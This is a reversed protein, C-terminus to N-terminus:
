LDPPHRARRATAVILRDAPDKHHDFDPLQISDLALAAGVPIIRVGPPRLSAEIWSSVATTLRLRGRKVLMALEWVSIASVALTSARAAQEIATLAKPDLRETM